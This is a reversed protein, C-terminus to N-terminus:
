IAQHLDKVQHGQMDKKHGKGKISHEDAGPPTDLLSM